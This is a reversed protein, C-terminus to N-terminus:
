VDATITATPGAGCEENNKLAALVAATNRPGVECGFMDLRTIM